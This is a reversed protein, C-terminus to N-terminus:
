CSISGDEKQWGKSVCPEDHNRNWVLEMSVNLMIAAMVEPSRAYVEADGSKRDFEVWSDDDSAAFAIGAILGDVYHVNMGGTAAVNFCWRWIPSGGKKSDTKKHM